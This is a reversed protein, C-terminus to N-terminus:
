PDAGKGQPHLVSWSWEIGSIARSNLWFGLARWGTLLHPCAATVLLADPDLLTPEGGSAGPQSPRAAAFWRPPLPAMSVAAEAPPASPRRRWPWSRVFAQHPKVCCRM